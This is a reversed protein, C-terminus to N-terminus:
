LEAETFAPFYRYVRGYAEIDAQELGPVTPSGDPLATDLERQEKFTLLPARIEYHDIGPCYFELSSFACDSFVADDSRPVLLGGFTMMPTGDDYVFNMIQKYELHEEPALMGNRAVLTENIIGHCITRITGAIRSQAMDGQTITAGLSQQLDEEMAPIKKAEEGYDAAKARVTVILLSWPELEVALYGIDDIMGRNLRRDYDLWIITPEDRWQLDSLVDSSLGYKMQICAYPKNFEFRERHTDEVEINIMQQFGLTKHFLRFDSFFPSGFGVYRYHNVPRVNPLLGCAEAIMKREINKGPRLDYNIKEYSPRDDM